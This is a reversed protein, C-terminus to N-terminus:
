SLGEENRTDYRKERNEAIRTRVDIPAAQPKAHGLAFFRNQEALIRM